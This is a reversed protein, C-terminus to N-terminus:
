DCYREAFCAVHSRFVLTGEKKFESREQKESVTKERQKGLLAEAEL